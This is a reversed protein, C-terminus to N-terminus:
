IIELMYPGSLPGTAGNANQPELWVYHTGASLCAGTEVYAVVDDVAGAFDASARLEITANGTAAQIRDRALGNAAIATGPRDSGGSLCPQVTGGTRGSLTLGLRYFKGATAALPQSLAGAGAAHNAKGGTITWGTGLTWSGSRWVASIWM